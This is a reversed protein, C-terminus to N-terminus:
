VHRASRLAALGPLDGQEIFELAAGGGTSVWDMRDGLGFGNVASVVDGGGIITTGGTKAMAEAVAETGEAFQSKEFFGLPGNWFITQAGLVEEAFARRSEPGCDFGEKGDPINRGVTEPNTDDPSTGIVIDTPLVIRKDGDLLKRAYDLQDEQLISNGISHGMAKLFTYAMGGGIIMTDVKELLADIV